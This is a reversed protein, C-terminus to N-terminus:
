QEIGVSRPDHGRPRNERADHRPFRLAAHGISGARPAHVTARCAADLRALGAVAPVSLQLTLLTLWCDPLIFKLREDGNPGCFQLGARMM